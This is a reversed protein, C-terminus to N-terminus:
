KRQDPSNWEKFIEKISGLSGLIGAAEYPLYVVKNDKGSIMEKLTELYRMAIVYQEASMKGDHLYDALKQISLSEAQAEKLRAGAEGDAVLMKARKEADADLIRAQSRGEAELIAAEKSAQAEAVKARKEREARMQMELAGKINEPPIIDQLEVFKVKIGWGETAKELETRIGINIVDRSAFTQDLSMEGIINRLITKALGEIAIALDYVSYVALRPNIIEYMLFADIDIVVNDKTIATQKPFDHSRTRLDFKAKWEMIPTTSGDKEKMYYLTMIKRPNEIIPMVFRIGPKLTRSYKGLREIVMAETQGVVHIGYVLILILLFLFILSFALLFTSPM